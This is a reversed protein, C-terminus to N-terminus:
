QNWVQDETLLTYTFSNGYRKASQNVLAMVLGFDVSDALVQCGASWRDVVLSEGDQRARHCNIGFLGTSEPALMDLTKNRDADRYVTIPRRQVLAPYAGQHKGIQWVGPYQGPKVIATGMVNLPNQRYYTGPDTTAGFMHLHPNGDAFYAICFLDNFTNADADASRIGVLNLNYDGSNFFRFGSLIVARKLKDFTPRKM